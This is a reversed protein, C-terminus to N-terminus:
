STSAKAAKTAAGDVKAARAAKVTAKEMATAARARIAAAQTVQRAPAPGMVVPLVARQRIEVLPAAARHVAATKARAGKARARAMAKAGRAPIAVVV